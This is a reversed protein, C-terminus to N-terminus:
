KGTTKEERQEKRKEGIVIMYVFVMFSVWIATRGGEGWTRGYLCIGVTESKQRCVYLKPRNCKHKGHQKNM